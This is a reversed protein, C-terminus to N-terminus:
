GGLRWGLQLVGGLWPGEMAVPAGGEVLGAARGLLSGVQLAPVVQLTRLQLVPAFTLEVDAAFARATDGSTSADRPQGAFEAYVGYAMASLQLRFSSSNLWYAGVGAGLFGARAHVTGVARNAHGAEFAAGAIFLWGDSIGVSAQVGARGLFLRQEVDRVRPGGYLALELVPRPEPEPVQVSRTLPRPQPKPPAPASRQPEPREQAGHLTLWSFVVQSAAIAITREAGPKAYDPAPIRRESRFSAVADNLSLTVNSTECTVDLAPVPADPLPTTALELRLIREVEAADLADCDHLAIAVGLQEARAGNALTFAFAAFAASRSVAACKL